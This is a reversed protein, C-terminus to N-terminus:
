DAGGSGSANSGVGGSEAASCAYTPDYSGMRMLKKFWVDWANLSGVWQKLSPYFYAVEDADAWSFVDVVLRVSRGIGAGALYSIKSTCWM